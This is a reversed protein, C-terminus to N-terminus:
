VHACRSSAMIVSHWNWNWLVWGLTSWYQKSMWDNYTVCELESIYENTVPCSM